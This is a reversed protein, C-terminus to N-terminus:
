IRSGFDGNGRFNQSGEGIPLVTLSWFIIVHTIGFWVVPM